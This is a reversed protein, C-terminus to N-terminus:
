NQTVPSVHLALAVQVPMGRLQESPIAHLPTSDQSGVIARQTAPVIVHVPPRTHLVDVSIHAGLQEPVVISHLPLQTSM